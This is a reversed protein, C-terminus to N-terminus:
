VRTAICCTSARPTWTSSSATSRTSRCPRSKSVTWALPEDEQADPHRIDIVIQGPLAEGVEEIEIDKGLEDIVHDISILKANWPASWCRWTSSSRKTSWATASPM